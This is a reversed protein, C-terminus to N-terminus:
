DMISNVFRAPAKSTSKVNGEADITFRLVTTEEGQVSLDIKESSIIQYPNLKIIQVTVPNIEEGSNSLRYLHTNVTYEGPMIGRLTVVEQNIPVKIEKGDPGRFTDTIAGMDDKDLHMAGAQKERFSVVNKGPDQVWLDIDSNSNANWDLVILFEAKSKIEAKNAVPNILILSLMFLSIFTLLLIFLFDIFDLPNHKNKM